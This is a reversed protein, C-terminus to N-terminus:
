LSLLYEILDDLQKDTLQSTKGHQDTRNRVTLLDRLTAASGDHLYPATRWLELLTPTDFARAMGDTPGATGVDCSQLATFLGPPHCSACGTQPSNFLERGRAAAASLQGRQILPSPMPKLSKLWADIPRAVDESPVAFLIHQLGARVATEATDRVGLSMAPPTEHAKLLSRTNKPNGIGDNLLDWNLGDVRADESHCSACSQWGQLSITADNFLREGKHLESEACPPKLLVSRVAIGQGGTQVIDVSDSFYGAIYVRDGALAMTRPGRVALKIRDRLGVLFSLDEAPGGPEYASPTPATHQANLKKLLAPFQIVSL